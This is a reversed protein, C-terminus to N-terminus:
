CNPRQKLADSWDPNLRLAASFDDDAADYRKQQLYILGRSFFPWPMDPRLAACVTFAAAAEVTQGQDQRGVLRRFIGVSVLLFQESFQDIKRPLCVCM